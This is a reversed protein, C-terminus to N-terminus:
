CIKEGKPEVPKKEPITDPTKEGDIFSKVQNLQKENKFKEGHLWYRGEHKGKLLAMFKAGEAIDFLQRGSIEVRWIVSVKAGKKVNKLPTLVELEARAWDGTVVKNIVKGVFITEAGRVREELPKTPLRSMVNQGVVKIAHQPAVKEGPKAPEKMAFSAPAVMLLILLTLKNM